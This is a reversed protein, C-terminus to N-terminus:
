FLPVNPERILYTHDRILDRTFHDLSCAVKDAKEILMRYQMVVDSLAKKDNELKKVKDMCNEKYVKLQKQWDEAHIRYNGKKTFMSLDTTRYCCQAFSPVGSFNAHFLKGNYDHYYGTIAKYSYRTGTGPFQENLFASLSDDTKNKWCKGDYLAIQTRLADAMRIAGLTGEIAVDLENQIFELELEDWETMTNM